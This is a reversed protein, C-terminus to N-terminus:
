CGCDALQVGDFLDPYADLLRAAANGAGDALIRTVDAAVRTPLVSASVAQQAMWVVWASGIGSDWLQSLGDYWSAKRLFDQIEQQPVAELHLGNEHLLAFFLSVENAASIELLSRSVGSYRQFALRQSTGHEPAPLPSGYEYSYWTRLYRYRSFLEATETFALEIQQPGLQLEAPRAPLPAATEDGGPSICYAEDASLVLTAAARHALCHARIAARLTAATHGGPLLRILARHSDQHTLLFPYSNFALPTNNTTSMDHHVREDTLISPHM